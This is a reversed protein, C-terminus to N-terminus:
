PNSLNRGARSIAMSCNGLAVRELGVKAVAVDGQLEARVGGFRVDVRQAIDEPVGWVKQRQAPPDVAKQRGMRDLLEALLRDAVKESELVAGGIEVGAVLRQHVFDDPHLRAGILGGPRGASGILRDADDAHEDLASIAGCQDLLL